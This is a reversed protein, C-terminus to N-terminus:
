LKLDQLIVESARQEDEIVKTYMCAFKSGYIM